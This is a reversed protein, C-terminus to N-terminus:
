ERRILEILSDLREDDVPDGEVTRFFAPLRAMLDSDSLVRPPIEGRDLAALRQMERWAASGPEVGLAQAYRKLKQEDRPPHLVGRELKSYNAPDFGNAECFARLTQKRDLRLRKIYEGFSTEM